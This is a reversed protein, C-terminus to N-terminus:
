RTLSRILSRVAEQQEVPLDELGHVIGDRDLANSEQFEM